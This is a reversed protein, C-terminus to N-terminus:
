CMVFQRSLYDVIYYGAVIGDCILVFANMLIARLCQNARFVAM